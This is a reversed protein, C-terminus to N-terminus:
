NEENKEEYYKANLAKWTNECWAEVFEVTHHDRAHLHIAVADDHEVEFYLEVPFSDKKKLHSHHLNYASLDYHRFNISYKVGRDDTIRKQYLGKETMSSSDKKQDYFKYGNELLVERNIM